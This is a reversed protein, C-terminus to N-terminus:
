RSRFSQVGEPARLQVEVDWSERRQGLERKQMLEARDLDSLTKTSATENDQIRQALRNIMARLLRDEDDNAASDSFGPFGELADDWVPQGPDSDDMIVRNLWEGLTVGEKRAATKARARARPDIGKVSWPGGASM